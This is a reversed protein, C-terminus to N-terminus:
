EAEHLKNHADILRCNAEIREKYSTIIYGIKDVASDTISSKEEDTFTIHHKPVPLCEVPVHVSVTASCGFLNGIILATAIAKIQM